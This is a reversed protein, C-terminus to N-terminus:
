SAVFRLFCLGDNEVLFLLNSTEGFEFEYRLDGHNIILISNEKVIKPLTSEMFFDYSQIQHDVLGVQAQLSVLIARIENETLM